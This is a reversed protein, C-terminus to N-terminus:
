ATSPRTSKLAVREARRVPGGGGCARGSEGICASAFDLLEKPITPPPRKAVQCVTKYYRCQAAATRKREENLREELCKVAEQSSTIAESAERAARVLEAREEVGAEKVADNVFDLFPQFLVRHHPPVRIGWNAESILASWLEASPSCNM